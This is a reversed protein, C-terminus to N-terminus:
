NNTQTAESFDVDSLQFYHNKKVRESHGLWLSEKLSGFQREIENSRSMRMNDFPRAIKGLGSKQAIRHFPPLLNWKTQGVFGQIVFDDDKPSRELRLQELEKRIESFLPVLREQHGHHRETKPSRVRFCHKAWDIDSYRLPMLESPCRLGGYRALVIIVRWEQTPSAELLKNIEKDTILRDKKRNVFSGLPVKEMPRQQLWGIDVAYNFVTKLTKMVTAVTAEPYKLSLSQRWELLREVTIEDLIGTASFAEFFHQQSTRYIVQTAPKMKAKYILFSDWLEQCTKPKDLSILGVKELKTLIETPATELWTTTKKDLISDNRWQHLLLIEVIGKVEEANKKSYRSGGLYITLRKRNEDYWQIDYGPTKDSKKEILTAM